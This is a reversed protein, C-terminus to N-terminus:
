DVVRAQRATGPGASLEQYPIGNIDQPTMLYLAHLRANKNTSKLKRSIDLSKVSKCPFLIAMLSGNEM